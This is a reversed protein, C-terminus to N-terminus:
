PLITIFLGLIQFCPYESKTNLAQFSNTVKLIYKNSPLKIEEEPDSIIGDVYIFVKSYSGVDLTGNWIETANEDMLERLNVEVPDFDEPEYWSGSEGGKQIGIKSITVNVSNFRDIVNV